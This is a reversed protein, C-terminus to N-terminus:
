ASSPHVQAETRVCKRRFLPGDSVNNSEDTTVCRSDGSIGYNGKMFMLVSPPKGYMRERAAWTVNRWARSMRQTRDGDRPRPDSYPVHRISTVPQLSRGTSHSISTLAIYLPNPSM